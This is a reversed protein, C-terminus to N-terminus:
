DVSLIQFSISATLNEASDFDHSRTCQKIKCGTLKKTLVEAGPKSRHSITIDFIDDAWDQESDFLAIWNELEKVWLEMSGDEVIISGPTYGRYVRGDGKVKVGDNGTGYGISKVGPVYFTAGNKPSIQIKLSTGDIFDSANYRPM